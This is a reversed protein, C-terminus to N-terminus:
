PESLLALVRRAAVERTDLEKAEEAALVPGSAPRAAPAATAASWCSSRAHRCNPRAAALAAREPWRRGPLQRLPVRHARVAVARRARMLTGDSGRLQGRGNGDAQAFWAGDGSGVAKQLDRAEAMVAVTAVIHLAYAAGLFGDLAQQRSGFERELAAQPLQWWAASTHLEQDPLNVPGYGINEHTYYRIKKYGSVRRLVHV